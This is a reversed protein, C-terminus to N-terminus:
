DISSANGSSNNDQQVSQESTKNQKTNVLPPLQPRIKKFAGNLSYTFWGDKSSAGCSVREVVEYYPGAKIDVARSEAVVETARACGNLRCIIHGFKYKNSFDEFKLNKVAPNTSTFLDFYEQDLRKGIPLIVTNTKGDEMFCTVGKRVDSSQAASSLSSGVILSIVILIKM